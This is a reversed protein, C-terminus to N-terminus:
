EKIAPQLRKWGKLQTRIHQAREVITTCTKELDKRAKPIADVDFTLKRQPPNMQSKYAQYQDYIEMFHQLDDVLAMANNKSTADRLRGAYGSLEFKFLAFRKCNVTLMGQQGCVDQCYDIITKLLDDFQGLESKRKARGTRWQKWWLRILKALAVVAAVVVGAVVTVVVAVGADALTAM